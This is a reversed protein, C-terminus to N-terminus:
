RQLNRVSLMEPQALLPPAFHGALWKGDKKEIALVNGTWIRAFEELSMRVNGQAPDKLYIRDKYIGCFVYYHGQGNRETHMIMPRQFDYLNSLTMYYGAAAFGRWEALSKLQLLSLGKGKELEKERALLDAETVTKDGLDRLLTALAAAGCTLEDTQLVCGEEKLLKVSKLNEKQYYHGAFYFAMVPRCLLLVIIAAALKGQNL